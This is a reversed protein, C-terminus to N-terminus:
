RLVISLSFILNNIKLFGQFKIIADRPSAPFASLEHGEEADGRSIGQTVINM